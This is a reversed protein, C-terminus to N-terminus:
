FLEFDDDENNSNEFSKLMIDIQTINALLSADLYHIDNATQNIVVEDMWSNLDKLIAIILLKLLNKQDNNLVDLDIMDVKIKFAELAYGIDMFEGSFEFTSIFSGLFSLNELFEANLEIDEYRFIFDNVEVMLDNLEVLLDDNAFNKMFTKADIKESDKYHMSDIQNDVEERDFDFFDGSDEEQCNLEVWNKHLNFFDKIIRKSVEDDKVYLKTLSVGKERLIKIKDKDDLLFIIALKSLAIEFKIFELMSFYNKVSDAIPVVVNKILNVLKNQTIKCNEMLGAGGGM